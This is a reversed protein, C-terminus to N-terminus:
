RRMSGPPISTNFYHSTTNFQGTHSTNAPAPQRAAAPQHVTLRGSRDQLTSGLQPNATAPLVNRYYNAATSGGRMLNMYPSFPTSVSAANPTVVPGQLTQARAQGGVFFVLVAAAIVM